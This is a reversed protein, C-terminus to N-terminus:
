KAGKSCSIMQVGMRIRADQRLVAYRLTEFHEALWRRWLRYRPDEPELRCLLAVDEPLYSFFTQFIEQKKEQEETGASIAEHWIKLSEYGAQALLQPLHAGTRRNGAYRDQALIHLFEPLLGDPDPELRSAPDNPEIVLLCGTDKLFSKLRALIQEPRSLHMLVFSLYIVDFGEIRNQRCIAELRTPFDPAEVDCSYFSFTENGYRDQASRALAENYELGIVRSIAPSSFRHVTKQGDNCGIDLVTWGDGASLLAQVADAEYLSLLRNQVALRQIETQDQFVHQSLM